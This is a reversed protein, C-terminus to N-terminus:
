LIPEALALKALTEARNQKRFLFDRSPILLEADNVDSDFVTM